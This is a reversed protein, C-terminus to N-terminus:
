YTAYARINDTAAPATFGAQFTVTTGSLVYDNSSGPLMLIGNVYIQESGSKPTNALTFVKNVGDQTGSVVTSRHYVALTTANGVSTVDGTLNANTTVTAANGTISGAIANTVQLDVFWGKTSRAGTSGISGTITLNNSGIALDGGSVTFGSTATAVTISATGNFSVGGITRATQLATATSANGTLTGIIATATLTFVALDDVELRGTTDSTSSLSMIEAYGGGAHQYSFSLRAGARGFDDYALNELAIDSDEPTPGALNNASGRFRLRPSFYANGPTALNTTELSLGDSSTAAVASGWISVLQQFIPNTNFVLNGTGVENTVAAALNASTPTALFTAIGTGLGSVGTSIPLGTANTLTGSAPTGLVPSTLVPATLTKNTLTQVTTKDVTVSTDISIIGGTIDIGNGETFTGTGSFQSFSIATTGVTPNRVTQVWGTIANTTGEEIFVFAGNFETSTDMELARTLVYPAGATGETTVKYLGNKLGAAENKVLIYDNLVTNVGDVTLIGNGTATLVGAAYNNAPSLAATTAVRASPKVDLGQAVSDVYSKIAVDTASVPTGFNQQANLITAAKIQRSGDIQTIAM